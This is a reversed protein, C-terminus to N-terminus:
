KNGRGERMWYEEIFRLRKDTAERDMRMQDVIEKHINKENTVVSKIEGVIAEHETEKLKVINEVATVLNEIKSETRARRVAERIIMALAPILLVGLFTLIAISWEFRTL